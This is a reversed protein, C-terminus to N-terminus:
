EEYWHVNGTFNSGTAAGTVRASFSHGPPIILLTEFEFPVRPDVLRIPSLLAGPTTPTLNGAHFEGVTVANEFYHNPNYPARIPNPFDGQDHYFQIRGAASVDITIRFVYLTKTNASGDALTAPNRMTFVATTNTADTTTFHGAIRAKGEAVKKTLSTSVHGIIQSGPGLSVTELAALSAADLATTTSELAALTTAGLEVTGTIPQTTSRDISVAIPAGEANDIEVRESAGSTARAKGSAVTVPTTGDIAQLDWDAVGGMASTLAAPFTITAYGDAITVTADNRVVLNGAGDRLLLRGTTASGVKEVPVRIVNDRGGELEFNYTKM